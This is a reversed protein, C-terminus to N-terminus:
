SDRHFTITRDIMREEYYREIEVRWAMKEDATLRVVLKNSDQVTM